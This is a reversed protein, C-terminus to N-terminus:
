EIVQACGMCEIGVNLKIKKGNFEDNIIEIFSRVRYVNSGFRNESLTYVSKEFQEDIQQGNM